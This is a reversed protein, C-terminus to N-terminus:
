SHDAPRVGVLEIRTAFLPSDDAGTLQMPLVKGLLTMFAAPNKEAQATLYNVGGSKDLAEIIMEKIMATTKNPVGKPRGKGRNGTNPGLKPESM